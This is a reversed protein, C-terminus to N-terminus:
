LVHNEGDVAIAETFLRVAEAYDGNSFAENGQVKLEESSMVSMAARGRPHPTLSSRDEVELVQEWRTFPWDEGESARVRCVSCISPRGPGSICSTGVDKKRGAQTGRAKKSM